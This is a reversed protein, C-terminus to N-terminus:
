GLHIEILIAIAHINAPRGSTAENNLLEIILLEDEGRRRM